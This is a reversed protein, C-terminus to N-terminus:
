ILTEYLLAGLFLNELSLGEKLFVSFLALCLSTLGPLPVLASGASRLGGASLWSRQLTGKM